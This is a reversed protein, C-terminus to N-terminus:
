LCDVCFICSSNGWILKGWILESLLHSFELRALFMLHWAGFWMWNGAEAIAIDWKSDTQIFLSSKSLAALKSLRFVTINWGFSTCKDYSPHRWCVTVKKEGGSWGQRKGTKSLAFRLALIKMYLSYFIQILLCPVARLSLNCHMSRKAEEQLFVKLKYPIVVLM